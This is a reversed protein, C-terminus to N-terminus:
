PRGIMAWDVNFTVTFSRLMRAPRLAPVHRSQVPMIVVFGVFLCQAM